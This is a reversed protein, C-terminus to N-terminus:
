EDGVPYTSPCSWFAKWTWLACTSPNLLNGHVGLCVTALAHLQDLRGSSPCFSCQEQHIWCVSWYGPRSRELSASSQSAGLIPAWGRTPRWSFPFWWGLTGRRPCKHRHRHFTISAHWGPCGQCLWLRSSSLNWGGVNQLRQQQELSFVQKKLQYSCNKETKYYQLCMALTKHAYKFLCFYNYITM